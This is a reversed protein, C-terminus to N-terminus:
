IKLMNLIEILIAQNPYYRSDKFIKNAKEKENKFLYWFIAISSSRSVGADCHIVMNDCNKHQEFFNIIQTFHKINFYKLNNREIKDYDYFELELIDRFQNKNDLRQFFGLPDTIRILVNYLFSELELKHIQYKNLIYVM